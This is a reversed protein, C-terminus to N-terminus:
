RSVKVKAVRKKGNSFTPLVNRATGFAEGIDSEQFNVYTNLMATSNWGLGLMAIKPSIGRRAWNTACCHRLDHFRFNAIRAKKCARRMATTIMSRSIRQGAKQHGEPRIFV